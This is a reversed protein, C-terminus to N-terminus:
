QAGPNSSLMAPLSLTLRKKGTLAYLALVQDAVESRMAVPTTAPAHSAEQAHHQKSEDDEPNDDQGGGGAGGLGRKQGRAHGPKQKSSTTPTPQEKDRVRAQVSRMNSNSSPRKMWQDQLTGPLVSWKPFSQQCSDPLTQQPKHVVAGMPSTVTQKQMDVIDCPILPSPCLDTANTTSLKHSWTAQLPESVAMMADNLVQSCSCLFTATGTMDDLLTDHDFSAKDLFPNILSFGRDCLDCEYEEVAAIVEPAAYWHYKFMLPETSPVPANPSQTPLIIAPLQGNEVIHQSLLNSELMTWAALALLARAKYSMEEITNKTLPQQSMWMIYMLVFVLLGAGLVFVEM